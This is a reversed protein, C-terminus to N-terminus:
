VGVVATFAIFPSLVAFQSEGGTETDGGTKTDFFLLQSIVIFAVILTHM